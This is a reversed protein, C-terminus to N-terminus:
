SVPLIQQLHRYGIVQLGSNRLFHYMEQSAFVEYDAVRCAWDPTIARLEPTDKAPHIIFHTVGPLLDSLAKRARQMREQPTDLPITELADLVPVDQDELQAIMQAARVAADADMGRARWGEADLRILM